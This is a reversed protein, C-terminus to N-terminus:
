FQLVRIKANSTLINASELDGLYEPFAAEAEGITDFIIEYFVIYESSQNDFCSTQISHAYIGKNKLFRIRNFANSWLKFVNDQLLYNTGEFHFLRECDYTYYSGNEVTILFKIDNDEAEKKRNFAQILEIDDVPLESDELYELESLAGQIGELFPYNDMAVTDILYNQAEKTKKAKSLSTRYGLEDKVFVKSTDRLQFYFLTCIAFISLVSTLAPWYNYNIFRSTSTTSKSKSHLINKFSSFANALKNVKLKGLMGTEFRSLTKRKNKFVEGRSPTIMLQGELNQNISFLGFGNKICQKKLELLYKDQPSDFVDDAMVIWQEDAHYRKFQEIAYIYRFRQARNITLAALCGVGLLASGIGILTTNFNRFTVVFEWFTLAVAFCFLVVASAIALSELFLKRKQLQYIVEEQKDFSTAEFTALFNEGNEIPFSLHGDIIVNGAAKLDYGTATNGERPRDKYFSKLFKVAVEKLQKESLHYLNLQKTSKFENFRNSEM